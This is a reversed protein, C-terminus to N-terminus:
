QAMGLFLLLCLTACVYLLYLHISGAQLRALLRALGGILALGPLYVRNELISVIQTQVTVVEPFHRRDQGEFRASNEYRLFPRFIRALPQAFSDASVQTKPSLTGFGCDWTRYNTVKSAKLFLLYTLASLAALLVATTGTPLVSSITYDVKLGASTLSDAILRSAADANVGSVVCLIVLCAQALLMGWGAEEAHHVAKSRAVGLFGVGMAKVFVAIALAGVASLLCIVALSLGKEIFTPCQLVNKFLSEYILFKSSFGNLPPISCIAFSGAFFFAMTWPMRKALGGLHRLDRTHAQSDVAGVSLFLLCKFLGHNWSHFIAAIIALDAITALSAQRAYLSLAIAMVILGVNEISSYALLKKLDNQVLAFLVGWFTSVVALTFALAIILTSNLAGFVLIRILAYVAVKIMFGSMIASVTAPAAPHAYPLWIHFPWIGAKICLGILILLAPLYTVPDNFTWDHFSWSRSIAHMWLFGGALLASSVRTAGLYIFASKQVSQHSHDTAVLAISALSMLEWAVLFTIADASAIVAYMSAIFVLFCAWYQGAHIKAAIHSLYGPSFISVACVIVSLLTLYLRSLSDIKFTLPFIGLWFPTQSQWGLDHGWSLILLVTSALASILTLAAPIASKLQKRHGLVLALSILSLLLALVGFTAMEQVQGTGTARAKVFTESNM